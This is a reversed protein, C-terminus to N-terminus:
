FDFGVFGIRFQLVFQDIWLRFPAPLPFNNHRGSGAHSVRTMRRGNSLHARRKPMKIAAHMTFAPADAAARSGISCQMSSKAAPSNSEMREFASRELIAASPGGGKRIASLSVNAVSESRASM